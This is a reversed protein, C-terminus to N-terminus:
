QVAYNSTVQRSNGARDTATVTFRGKKNKKSTNIAQGDSITGVCTLVGSLGDSCAYDAVLSQRRAYTAGNTPTTIAIDPPTKDININSASALESQNGALDYCRGSASQNAGDTSLVVSPDCSAIGSLVDSGAFGVIVNQRHWGNLNAPPSANALATPPTADRKVTVSETATGGASTATCTFTEGSTDATVSVSDCDSSSSIASESDTVTWSVQVDGVYWGNNGAIGSVQPVISPATNDPGVEDLSLVLSWTGEFTVIQQAIQGGAQATDSSAAVAVITVPGPGIVGSGSHTGEQAPGELAFRTGSNDQMVIRATGNNPTGVTGTIRYSYESTLYLTISLSSVVAGYAQEASYSIGGAGDDFPVGISNARFGGRGNALLTTGVEPFFEFFGDSSAGVDAPYDCCFSQTVSSAQQDTLRVGNNIYWDDVQPLGGAKGSATVSMNTELIQIDAVAIPPLVALLSIFASCLRM